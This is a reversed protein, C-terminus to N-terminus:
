VANRVAIKGQVVAVSGTSLTAACEVVVDAGATGGALAVQVGKGAAVTNGLADIVAAASLVVPPGAVLGTLSAGGPGSVAASLISAGAVLEPFNAFDFVVSLVETPTKTRTQYALTASMRPSRRISRARADARQFRGGPRAATRDPQPAGALRGTLAVVTGPFPPRPEARAGLVRGPAQQPVAPPAPGARATARGERTGTEGHATLVPGRPRPAHDARARVALVSGPVPAPPESRAVLAPARLRESPVLPRVRALAAGPFPPPPEVAATVPRTPPQQPVLPPVPSKAVLATGPARLAPPDDPRAVHTRVPRRPDGFGRAGIMMAGTAPPPSEIAAVLSRATPRYDTPPRAGSRTARGPFPPPPEAAAMLPPTPRQTPQALGWRAVAVRGALAEPPAPDVAVVVERVPSQLSVAPPAPGRRATVGGDFPRSTEPELAIMITGPRQAPPPPPGGYAGAVLQGDWVLAHQIEAPRAVLAVGPRQQVTLGDPPPQGAITQRPRFAARRM